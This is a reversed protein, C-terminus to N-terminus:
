KSNGYTPPQNNVKHPNRNPNTELDSRPQDIDETYENALQAKHNLDTIKKDKNEKVGAKAQGGDAPNGHGQKSSNNLASNTAM